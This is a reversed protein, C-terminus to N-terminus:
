RGGTVTSTTVTLVDMYETIPILQTGTLSSPNRCEKEATKVILNMACNFLLTAITFGTIIAKEIIHCDSYLNNTKIRLKFEKYYDM